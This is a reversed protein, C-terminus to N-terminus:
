RNMELTFPRRVTLICPLSLVAKRDKTLGLYAPGEASLLISRHNPLAFTQKGTIVKQISRSELVTPTSQTNSIKTM